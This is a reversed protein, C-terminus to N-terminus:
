INIEMRINRTSMGVSEYFAIAEKNFNWVNLQVSAVEAKEAYSLIYQFLVKGYGYGRCTSKVAIDDIYIYTVPKLIAIDQAKVKKIISYAVIKEDIEMVFIEHDNEAILETFYECDIPNLIDKYVDPRAEYHIKHVERVIDNVSDFDEITAKRIM